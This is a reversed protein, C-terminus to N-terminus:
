SNSVHATSPDNLELFAMYKRLAEDRHGPSLHAYIMTTKVNSHGLLKSVEFISLGSRIMDTAFTHRLDYPRFDKLGAKKIANQWATKNTLFRSGDSKRFLYGDDAVGFSRRAIIAWVAPTIPLEVPEDTKSRELVILRNEVNVNSRKLGLLDLGVLGTQMSVIAIDRLEPSCADLLRSKEETTLWRVRGRKVTYKKVHRGPSKPLMGLRVAKNLIMKLTGVERNVTAKAVKSLRRTRYEEILGVTIQRLSKEGFFNLPATVCTCVCYVCVCVDYVCVHVRMYACVCVHV